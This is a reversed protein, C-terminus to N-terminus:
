IAEELLDCLEAEIIGNLGILWAVLIDQHTKSGHAVRYGTANVIVALKYMNLVRYYHVTKPNVKLGSAKEYREFYESESMFGGILFTRGDEALHGYYRNMPWAIDEHRDGLHGLEWDLIGSITTDHETYLFNGPRYDGHVVSVRDVPPMNNRLWAIALRLLPVDESYDEEWVREWWNLQLKVADVGPSPKDFASLDAVRWDLLHIKAMHGIFQPGLTERVERGFQIGIGAVGSTARTPKAVGKIFGYVIAPYPLHKGDADVWFAPPVPIIGEFAKILQIERLRSTEVIAESPEMRLVMPTTVSGKGQPNWTLDFAMQLKSSGGTLWRTAAIEFPGVNESKLQSQLGAVLTQLSVPAYPPGSRRMLKRTLIRDIEKECPFHKRIHDIWQPTPRSRDQIVASALGIGQQTAM